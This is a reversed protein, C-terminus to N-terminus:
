LAISGPGCGVDLVRMGARLHPLFFAGERSPTKAAPWAEFAPNDRQSYVEATPVSMETESRAQDTM